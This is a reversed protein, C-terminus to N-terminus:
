NQCDDVYMQVKKRKFDAQSFCVQSVGNDGDLNKSVCMFWDKPGWVTGLPIDKSQLSCGGSQCWYCGSSVCLGMNADKFHRFLGGETVEPIPQSFFQNLWKKSQRVCKIDLEPFTCHYSDSFIPTCSLDPFIAQVRSPFNEVRASKYIHLDKHVIPTTEKHAELRYFYSSLHQLLYVAQLPSGSFWPAHAYATTVETTTLKKTELQAFLEETTKKSTGTKITGTPIHLWQYTRVDEKFPRISFAVEAGLDHKLLQLLYSGEFSDTLRFRANERSSFTTADIGKELALLYSSQPTSQSSIDGETVCALLWIM